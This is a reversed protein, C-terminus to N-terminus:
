GEEGGTDTLAARAHGWYEEDIALYAADTKAKEGTIAEFGAVDLPITDALDHNAKHYDLLFSAREIPVAYRRYSNFAAWTAASTDLAAGVNTHRALDESDIFIMEMYSTALIQDTDPM